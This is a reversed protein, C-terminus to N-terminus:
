KMLRIDFLNLFLEARNVVKFLDSLGIEGYNPHSELNRVENLYQLDSYVDESYEEVLTVKIKTLISGFTMNKPEENFDRRYISYILAEVGRTVRRLINEIEKITLASSKSDHVSTQIEDRGRAIRSLESRLSLFPYAKEIKRMARAILDEYESYFDGIEDGLFRSAFDEPSM